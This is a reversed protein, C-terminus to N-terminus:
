LKRTKLYQKYAKNYIKKEKPTSEFLNIWTEKKNIVERLSRMKKKVKETVQEELTIPYSTGYRYTRGLAQHISIGYNMGYMLTKIEETLKHFLKELHLFLVLDRRSSALALTDLITLREQILNDKLEQPTTFHNSNM